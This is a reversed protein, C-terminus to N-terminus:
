YVLFTCISEIFFSWILIEFFADLDDGKEIYQCFM